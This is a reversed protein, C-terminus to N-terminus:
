LTYFKSKLSQMTFEIVFYCFCHCGVHSMEGEYNREVSIVQEFRGGPVLVCHLIDVVRSVDLDLEGVAEHTDLLGSCVEHQALAKVDDEGQNIFVVLGGCSVHLLLTLLNFVM